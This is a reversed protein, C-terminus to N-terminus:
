ATPQPKLMGHPLDSWDSEGLLKTSEVMPVMVGDDLWMMSLFSHLNGSDTGIPRLDSRHVPHIREVRDVILVFRQGNSTLLLMRATTPFPSEDDTHEELRPKALRERLDLVPVLTGRLNVVGRVFSPTHPLDQFSMMFLVEDIEDLRMGYREDAAVFTLIQVVSHDRTM